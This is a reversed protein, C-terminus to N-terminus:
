EEIKIDTAYANLEGLPTDKIKVRAIFPRNSTKDRMILFDISKNAAFEWLTDDDDNLNKSIQLSCRQATGHYPSNDSIALEESGYDTVTVNFLRKGDYVTMESNCFGLQNYQYAIKMMITQLDFTDAPAPAPSFERNKKHSNSVVVQSIPHGTDDFFVQKSRNKFRSQSTYHYDRSILKDNFIDGSTDYRATFPYLTNFFGNTTVQSNINYDKANLTYSFNVKAADFAGISVLFNHDVTFAQASTSFFLLTLLFFKYSKMEKIRENLNAIYSLM